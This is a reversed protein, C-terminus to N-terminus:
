LNWFSRKRKKRRPEQGPTFSNGGKKPPSCSDLQLATYDPRFLLLAFPMSSCYLKLKTLGALSKCYYAPAPLTYFNM